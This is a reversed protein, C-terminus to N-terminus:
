KGERHMTEQVGVVGAPMRESRLRHFERGGKTNHAGRRTPWHGKEMEWGAAGEKRLRPPDEKWKMLEESWSRGTQQYSRFRIKGRFEM